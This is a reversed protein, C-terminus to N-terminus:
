FSFSYILDVAQNAGDIAELYLKKTLDYRLSLTSQGSSDFVNQGYSLLLRDNLRGSVVLETDDGRGRTELAFDEIGIADAVGSGITRGGKVSLALAASALLSASQDSAEGIDRGLVVYSLIAEESKDGPETFLTIDPEAVDGTIKLGAIREPEETEIRRIAQIDLATRDVPGVFIIQGSAELNQGYQKFIGDVVRIEGGLQVPDPSRLSVSMDGTLNAKLGYADLAVDDGLSVDVDVRLDLEGPPDVALEEAEEDIDEVVVIDDSLTAAGKPLEAVNIRAFPVDVSGGVRVSAPRAGITIEHSVLSDTLPDSRIELASGTLTVDARWAEIQQWNASGDIAIAGDGTSDLAGEIFARRGKVNTTIRGGDIPLPLADGRVVPDDLVIAGDFRPDTLAGSLDGAANVTGSIEEFDPLFAKLFDIRFGALDLRGDLARTEDSPDLRVALTANGMTDSSVEFTADVDTPDIEAALTLREYTFSVPDENADIVTAGGNEIALAVSAAFGGPQGEGWTLTTDAGLAGDLTTEAPLFPNLRALPYTDLSIVATGDAAALVKNELCLSTEETVWCHPDVSFQKAANDWGLATPEALTVVHAPVELKVSELSGLWDFSESLGGAAKLDIATAEPGDAFLSLGHEARTGDLGLRINAVRQGGAVVEGVAFNLTSPELAARAVDAKLSLGQVVTDNLELVSSNADLAISPEALPGALSLDASFGGALGPVFNQLQPLRATAVIDWTDGVTGSADVRNDGNDLTLTDIRFLGDVGKAVVADLTFPHQQLVGEVQAQRLDLTWEGDEGVGGSARIAGDLNGALNELQLSPDIDAIDISALWAIGETWSLAASGDVRGGLTAIGIDDLLLRETNARGSLALETTPVQEGDLNTSVALAYDDLTGDVSVSLDTARAMARADLPWGAEPVNLELTVPLAKRLPNVRGALRADLPGSVDVAVDLEALTNDLAVDVRVDRVDGFGEGEPVIGDLTAVLDLDLPYDGDPTVTGSLKASYTGYDVSADDLILAGEETRASLRINELVQPPADGPPQFTLRRVLVEKVTVDIPLAVSPLAIDGAPEEPEAKEVAFTTVDLEDVVVRDLCFERGKLCSLRWATDVGRAEVKLAESEFSLADTAIGGALSGEFAGLELGDVRRAAERTVLNFGKETGALFWLAGLALLVILLLVLLIIGIWKLLRRM